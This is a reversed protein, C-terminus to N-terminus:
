RWGLYLVIHFVILNIYKFSHLKSIKITISSPSWREECKFPVLAHLNKILWYNHEAQQLATETYAEWFFRIVHTVQRRRM